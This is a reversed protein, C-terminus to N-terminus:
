TIEMINEKINNEALYACVKAIIGVTRGEIKGFGVVCNIAFEKMIELFSDEDIVCNIVERVDYDQRPNEPM